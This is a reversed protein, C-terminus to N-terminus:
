GALVARVSARFGKKEVNGVHGHLLGVVRSDAALEGRSRM